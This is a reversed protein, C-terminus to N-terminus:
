LFLRVPSGFRYGKKHKIATYYQTFKDETSSPATSLIASLATNLITRGVELFFVGKAFLKDGSM